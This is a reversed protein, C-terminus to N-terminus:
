SEGGVSVLVGRAAPWHMVFLAKAENAERTSSFRAYVVGDVSMPIGHSHPSVPVVRRARPDSQHKQLNATHFDQDSMPLAEAKQLSTLPMPWAAAISAEHRFPMAVAFWGAGYLTIAALPETPVAVGIQEDDAFALINDLPKRNFAALGFRVCPHPASMGGPAHDCDLKGHDCVCPLSCECAPCWDGRGRGECDPCTIRGTGNCAKCATLMEIWHQRLDEVLFSHTAPRKGLRVDNEILEAFRLRPRVSRDAIVIAAGDSVGAVGDITVRFARPERAIREAYAEINYM